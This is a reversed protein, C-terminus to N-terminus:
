RLRYTCGRTVTAGDNVAKFMEYLGFETIKPIKGNDLLINGPNLNFHVIGAEQLYQLGECIEKIIKFRISWGLHQEVTLSQLHNNGSHLHKLIMKTIHEVVYMRQLAQAGSLFNALSGGPVYEFGILRRKYVGRIVRGDYLHSEEHEGYSYGLLRVLNKHNTSMLQTCHHSFQEDDFKSM